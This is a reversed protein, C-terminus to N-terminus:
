SALLVLYLSLVERLYETNPHLNQQQLKIERNSFISQPPHHFYIVELTFSLQLDFLALFDCYHSKNNSGIRLVKSNQSSGKNFGEECPLYLPQQFPKFDQIFLRFLISFITSSIVWPVAFNRSLCNLWSSLFQM